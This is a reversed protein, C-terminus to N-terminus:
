EDDFIGGGCEAEDRASRTPSFRRDEEQALMTLSRARPLDEFAMVLADAKNPSKPLRKKPTLRLPYEGVEYTITGMEALLEEDYPLCVEEAEIRHALEFYVEARRNYYLKKDRAEGGFDFREVRFKKQEFRQIIPEGLGGDDAAVWEPKIGRRKCEAIVIDTLREVDRENGEWAFTAANGDAVALVEKDGGVSLDLGARRYEGRGWRAPGGVAQMCRRAKAMDFVQGAGKDPFKAWVMSDTLEKRLSALQEEIERRRAPDDHLHPCRTWDVTMSEWRKANAGHFCDYFYGEPRGPSSVIMMRSAHCREFAEFIELPVTKAEDVIILLSTKPSDACLEAWQGATVGYHELPNREHRLDRIRPPEHWGEARGANDTSFSILRSGTATNVGGDKGFKWEPGLQPGLSQLNPYLQGTIQRYSGSTTVTLSERFAAMHWMVAGTILKSTKGAENCTAVALRAGRPDIKELAEVQWPYLAWGLIFAAYGQPTTTAELTARDEMVAEHRHGGDPM